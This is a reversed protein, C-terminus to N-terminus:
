QKNAEQKLFNIFDHYAEKYKVKLDPFIEFVEEGTEYSTKIRIADKISYKESIYNYIYDIFFNVCEKIVEDQKQTEIEYVSVGTIALVLAEVFESYKSETKQDQDIM